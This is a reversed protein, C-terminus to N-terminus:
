RRRSSRSKKSKKTKNTKKRKKTKKRRRKRGGGIGTVQGVPGKASLYGLETPASATIGPTHPSTPANIYPTLKPNQPNGLYDTRASRNIGQIRSRAGGRDFSTLKNFMADEMRANEEDADEEDSEWGRGSEGLEYMKNRKDKTGGKRCKSDCDAKYFSVENEECKSDGSKVKDIIKATCVDCDYKSRYGPMKCNMRCGKLEKKCASDRKKEENKKDNIVKLDRNSEAEALAYARAAAGKAIKKDRDDLEWQSITPTKNFDIGGDLDYIGPPRNKPAVKGVWSRPSLLKRGSKERGGRQRNRSLSRHKKHVM